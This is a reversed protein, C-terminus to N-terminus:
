RGDVKAYLRDFDRSWERLIDDVLERIPVRQEPSVYSFMSDPQQDDGRLVRCRLRSRSSTSGKSGAVFGPGVRVDLCIQSVDRSRCMGFHTRYLRAALVTTTSATAAKTAHITASWCPTHGSAGRRGTPHRVAGSWADM